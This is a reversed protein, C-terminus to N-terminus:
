VIVESVATLRLRSISLGTPGRLRVAVTAGLQLASTGGPVRRASDRDFVITTRNVVFTQAVPQGLMASLGRYNGDFVDLTLSTDTTASVKGVLQYLGVRLPDRLVTLRAVPQRRILDLSASRPARIAFSVSAHSYIDDATGQVYRGDRFVRVASGSNMVFPQDPPAGVLRDLARRNGSEVTVFLLGLGNSSVPDAALVVGSFSYTRLPGNATLASSAVVLLILGFAVASTAALSTWARRNM